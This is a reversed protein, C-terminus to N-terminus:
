ASLIIIAGLALLIFLVIRTSFTSLDAYCMVRLVRVGCAHVCVCACWRNSGRMKKSVDCYLIMYYIMM